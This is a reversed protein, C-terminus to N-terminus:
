APPPGSLPSPGRPLTLLGSGKVKGPPMQWLGWGINRRYKPFCPTTERRTTALRITAPPLAHAAWSQQVCGESEGRAASEPVFSDGSPSQSQQQQWASVAIGGRGPMENWNLEHHDTSLTAVNATERKSVSM